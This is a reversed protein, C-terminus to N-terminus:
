SLGEPTVDCRCDRNPRFAPNTMAERYMPSPEPPLSAPAHLECYALGAPRFRGRDDREIWVARRWCVAHVAGTVPVLADCRRM